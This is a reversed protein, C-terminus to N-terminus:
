IKQVVNDLWDVNGDASAFWMGYPDTLGTVFDEGGTGNLNARLIKNLNWDTWYMKSGVVDVAIGQPNFLGMTVLDEVDTGDINARQIKKPTSYLIWYVKDMPDCADGQGDVNTDTQGSNPILPCNDLADAVGDGDGDVGTMCSGLMM